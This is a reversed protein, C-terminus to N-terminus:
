PMAIRFSDLRVQAGASIQTTGLKIGHHGGGPRQRDLHAVRVQPRYRGRQARLDDAGADDGSRARLQLPLEEVRGLDAM